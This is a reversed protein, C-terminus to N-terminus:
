KEELCACKVVLFSCKGVLFACKDWSFRSSEQLFSSSEQLFCWEGVLFACRGVLFSCKGVLFACKDWLFRASKWLISGHKAYVFLFLSLWRIGYDVDHGHDDEAYDRRRPFHNSVVSSTKQNRNCQPREAGPPIPSLSATMGEYYTEPQPESLPHFRTAAVALPRTSLGTTSSKRQQLINPEMMFPFRDASLSEFMHKFVQQQNVLLVWANKFALADTSNAAALIPAENIPTSAFYEDMPLSKFKAMTSPCQLSPGSTPSPAAM